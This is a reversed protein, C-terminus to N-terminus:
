SRFGSRGRTAQQGAAVLAELTKAYAELQLDRLEELTALNARIIIEALADVSSSVVMPDFPAEVNLLKLTNRARDIREQSTLVSADNATAM